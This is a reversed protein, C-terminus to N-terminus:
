RPESSIGLGNSVIDSSFSLATNATVLAAFPMKHAECQWYSLAHDKGDIYHM